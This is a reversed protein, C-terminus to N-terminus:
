ASRLYTRARSQKCFTNIPALKAGEWPLSSACIEARFVTAGPPEALTLEILQKFRHLLPLGGGLSQPYNFAGPSWKRARGAPRRVDNSVSMGAAQLTVQAARAGLGETCEGASRQGAQMVFIPEMGKGLAHGATRRNALCGSRQIDCGAGCQTQAMAEESGHNLMLRLWQIAHHFHILSEKPLRQFALAPNWARCM